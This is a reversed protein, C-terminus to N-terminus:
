RAPMVGLEAAYAPRKMGSASSVPVSGHRSPSHTISRPARRRTSVPGGSMTRTATLTDGIAPPAPGVQHGADTRWCRVAGAKGGLAELDLDGLQGQEGVVSRRHSPREVFKAGHADPDHEVVEAGAEGREAVQGPECDVLDLDVPAEDATEASMTPLVAITSAEVMIALANPTSIVASPTSVTACFFRRRRM